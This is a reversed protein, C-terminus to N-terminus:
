ERGREWEWVYTETIADEKRERAVEAATYALIPWGADGLCKGGENNNWAHSCYECDPESPNDSYQKSWEDPAYADGACPCWINVPSRGIPTM